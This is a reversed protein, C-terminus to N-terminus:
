IASSRAHLWRGAAPCGTSNHEATLGGQRHTGPGQQSGALGAAGWVVAGAAQPVQGTGSAGGCLLM